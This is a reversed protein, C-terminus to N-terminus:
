FCDHYGGDLRSSGVLLEVGQFMVWFAMCGCGCHYWMGCKGEEALKYLHQHKEFESIQRREGVRCDCLARKGRYSM